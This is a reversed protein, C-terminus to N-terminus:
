VCLHRLRKASAMMLISRFPSVPAAADFTAFGAKPHRIKM